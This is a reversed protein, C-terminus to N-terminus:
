DIENITLYLCDVPTARESLTFGQAKREIETWTV